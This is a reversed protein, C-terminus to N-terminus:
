TRGLSIVELDKVLFLKTPQNTRVPDRTVLSVESGNHLWLHGLVESGRGSQLAPIVPVHWSVQSETTSPILGLNEYISPLHEILRAVHWGM